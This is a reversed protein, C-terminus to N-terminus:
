GVIEWYGTRNTGIRKIINQEQLRIMMQVVWRRSYGTLNALDTVTVRPNKSIQEIIKLVSKPITQLVTKLSGRM